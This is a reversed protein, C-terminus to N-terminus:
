QAVVTRRPSGGGAAARGRRAKCLDRVSVPLWPVSKDRLQDRTPELVIGADDCPAVSVCLQWAAARAHAWGAPACEISPPAHSANDMRSEFWGRAGAKKLGHVAMAHRASFRSFVQPTRSVCPPM